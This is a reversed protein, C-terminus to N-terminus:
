VRSGRGGGERGGWRESLGGGIGVTLVLAAKLSTWRGVSSVLFLSLTSRYDHCCMCEHM